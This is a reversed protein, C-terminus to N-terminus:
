SARAPVSDWLRGFGEDDLDGDRLIYGDRGKKELIGAGRLWAVGLYVQYAPLEAGTTGDIVPLIEEVSFLSGVPVRQTLHRAFALLTEKGARHEYAERSKKSWGIKILREGDREFRPYRLRAEARSTKKNDVSRRAEGTLGQKQRAGRQEAAPLSAPPSTLRSLGAALNAIRAVDTYAQEKIGKEILSKLSQEAEALVKRADELISMHTYYLSFLATDIGM